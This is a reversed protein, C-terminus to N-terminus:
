RLKPKGLIAPINCENQDRALTFQEKARKYDGRAFYLFGKGVLNVENSADIKEAKSYYIDATRFYEEKKDNDKAKSLHLSLIFASCNLLHCLFHFFLSSM